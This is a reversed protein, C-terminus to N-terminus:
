DSLERRIATLSSAAKERDKDLKEISMRCKEAFPAFLQRHNHSANPGLRKHMDIFESIQYVYDTESSFSLASLVDPYQESKRRVIEIERLSEQIRNRATYWRPHLAAIENESFGHDWNGGVQRWNAIAQALKQDYGVLGLAKDIAAIKAPIEAPSPRRPAKPRRTIKGGAERWMRFPTIFFFLSIFLVFWIAGIGALALLLWLLTDLVNGASM